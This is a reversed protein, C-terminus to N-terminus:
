SEKLNQIKVTRHVGKTIYNCNQLFFFAHMCVNLSSFEIVKDENYNNVVCIHMHSTTLIYDNVYQRPSFKPVHYCKRKLLFGNLDEATYPLM